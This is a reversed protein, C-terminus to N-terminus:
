QLILLRYCTSVLTRIDIIVPFPLVNVNQFFSSCLNRFIKNTKYKLISVYNSFDTSKFGTAVYALIHKLTPTTNTAKNLSLIQDTCSLYKFNFTLGFHFLVPLSKWLFTCYYINNKIKESQKWFNMWNVELNPKTVM